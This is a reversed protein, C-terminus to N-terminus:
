RRGSSRARGARGSTSRASGSAAARVLRGQDRDRRDRLRARGPAEGVDACASAVDEISEHREAFPNTRFGHERLWELSRGTRRSDAARRARGIGYVWISLPRAATIPRTRRACRAPPPTARTRRRSRARRSSGSTSSASAPSRCTCRAACRSCRRRREGDGLADAAPDGRDHAPQRDRGRRAHRRGRTAGRVFVGNEYTLNIALGDIKPEIVYRSRSTAASASACTTRGM